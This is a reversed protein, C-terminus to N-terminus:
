SQLSQMTYLVNLNLTGTTTSTTPATTVNVSIYEEAAELYGVGAVTNTRCVVLNGAVQGALCTSIFRTTSGSDGVGYVLAPGATDNDDSSLIVELITAGAPVKVMRIVDNIVLAASITYTGTTSCVANDCTRPNVATAAQASTYTTAAFAQATFLVSLFATLLVKEFIDRIKM